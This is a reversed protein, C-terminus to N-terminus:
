VIEKKLECKRYEVIKTWDDVRAVGKERDFWTNRWDIKIAGKVRENYRKKMESEVEDRSFFMEIETYKGCIEILVYM